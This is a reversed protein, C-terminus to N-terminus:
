ESDTDVHDTEKIYKNYVEIIIEKPILMKEFYGTDIEKLIEIGKETVEIMEEGGKYKNM